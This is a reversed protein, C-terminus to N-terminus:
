YAILAYEFAAGAAVHASMSLFIRSSSKLVYM